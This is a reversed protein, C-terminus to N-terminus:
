YLLFLGTMHTMKNITEKIKWLVTIWPQTKKDTSEISLKLEDLSMDIIGHIYEQQTIISKNSNICEVGGSTISASIDTCGSTGIHDVM